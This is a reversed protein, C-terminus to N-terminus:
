SLYGRDPEDLAAAAAVAVSRSADRELRPQVGTHSAYWRQTRPTFRSPQKGTFTVWWLAPDNDLDFREYDDWGLMRDVQRRLKHPQERYKPLKAQFKTDLVNSPLRVGVYKSRQYKISKRHFKAARQELQALQARVSDRLETLYGLKARLGSARRLAMQVARDGGAQELWESLLGLDANAFFEALRETCQALYLAPLRPIRAEAGDRREVLAHVDDVLGEIRAVEARWRDRPERVKEWAPLVDDGFDDLELERCIRDGAEWHKWYKPQWWHEAFDPTDYKVELLELFGRLAEFKACEQDWPELMSRAEALEATLEGQPGVLYTRRRWREDAMITAITRRLVKAEHSMAALPDRRSFGRYGTLREARELAPRTLEQLYAQALATRAEAEEGRVSGLAQGLHGELATWSEQLEQAARLNQEYHQVAELARTM